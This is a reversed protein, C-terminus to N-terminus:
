IEIYRCEVQEGYKEFAIPMYEGKIRQCTPCDENYFFLFRVVPEAQAVVAQACLLLLSLSLIVIVLSRKRITM